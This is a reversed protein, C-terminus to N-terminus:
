DENEMIKNYAEKGEETELNLGVIDKINLFEQKEAFILFLDILDNIMKNKEFTNYVKLLSSYYRHYNFGNSRKGLELSLLNVETYLEKNKDLIKILKQKTEEGDVYNSASNILRYVITYVRAKHIPNDTIPLTTQLVSYPINASIYKNIQKIEDVDFDRPIVEQVQNEM